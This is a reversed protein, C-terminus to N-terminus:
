SLYRDMNLKCNPHQEHLDEWEEWSMLVSQKGLRYFSFGSSLYWKGQSNRRVRFRFTYLRWGFYFGNTEFLHYVSLWPFIPIIVVIANGHQNFTLNIGIGRQDGESRRNIFLFRSLFWWFCQNLKTM